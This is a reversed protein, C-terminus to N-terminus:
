SAGGPYSAPYCESVANRALERWNAGSGEISHASLRQTGVLPSPSLIGEPCGTAPELGAGRMRRADTGSLRRSIESM